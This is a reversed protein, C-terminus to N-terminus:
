PATRLLQRLSGEGHRWVMVLRRLYPVLFLATSGQLKMRPESRMESRERTDEISIESSANSIAKTSPHPKM